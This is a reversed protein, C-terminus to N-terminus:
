QMTMGATSLNDGSRKLMEISSAKRIYSDCDTDIAAALRRMDHVLRAARDGEDVKAAMAIFTQCYVQCSILIAATMEVDCTGNEESEAMAMEHMDFALGIARDIIQQVTSCTCIKTALIEQETKKRKAM